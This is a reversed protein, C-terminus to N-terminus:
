VGFYFLVPLVEEYKVLIKHIRSEEASYATHFHTKCAVMLTRGKFIVDM